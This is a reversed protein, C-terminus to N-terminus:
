SFKYLNEAGFKGANKIDEISKDVAENDIEPKRIEGM